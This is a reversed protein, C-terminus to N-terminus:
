PGPRGYPGLVSDNGPMFFEWVEMWEPRWGPRGREREEDALYLVARNWQVVAVLVERSPDPERATRAFNDRADVIFVGAEGSDEDDVLVQRYWTAIDDMHRAYPFGDFEISM